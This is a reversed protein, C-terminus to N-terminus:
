IRKETMQSSFWIIFKYAMMTTTVPFSVSLWSWSFYNFEWVGFVIFPSALPYPPLEFYGNFLFRLLHLRRNTKLCKGYGSKNEFPAQPNKKQKSFFFFIIESETGGNDKLDINLTLDTLNFLFATIVSHFMNGVNSFSFLFTALMNRFM